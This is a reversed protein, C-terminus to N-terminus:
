NIALIRYQVGNGTLFLYAQLNQIKAANDVKTDYNFDITAEFLDSSVGIYDDFYPPKEQRIQNAFDNSDIAYINKQQWATLQGLSIQPFLANLLIPPATNLNIKYSRAILQVYPSIKELIQQNYSPIELLDSLEYSFRNAKRQKSLWNFADDALQAPLNLKILLQRYGQLLLPDVGTNVDFLQYINLNAQMDSLQAKFMGQPANISNTSLVNVNKEPTNQNIYAQNVTDYVTAFTIPQILTQHWIEQKHTQNPNSDSELIFALTNLASHYSFHMSQQQAQMNLANLANNHKAFMLGLISVSLLTIGLAMVVAFGQKPQCYQKIYQIPKM